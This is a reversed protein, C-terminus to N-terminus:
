QKIPEKRLLSSAFVLVAASVLMGVTITIISSKQDPTYSGFVWFGVIISGAVALFAVLLIGNAPSAFM